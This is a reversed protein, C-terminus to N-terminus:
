ARGGGEKVISKVLPYTSGDIMVENEFGECKENVWVVDCIWAFEIWGVDLLRSVGVKGGSAENHREHGFQGVLEAVLQALHHLIFGLFALLFTPVFAVVIM